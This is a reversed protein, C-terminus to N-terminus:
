IPHTLALHPKQLGLASHHLPTKRAGYKSIVFISLVHMKVEFTTISDIADFEKDKGLKEM